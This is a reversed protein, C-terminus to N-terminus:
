LEIKKCTNKSIHFFCIGYKQTEIKMEKFNEANITECLKMFNVITEPPGLYGGKEITLKLLKEYAEALPSREYFSMDHWCVAGSGNYKILVVIQASGFMM